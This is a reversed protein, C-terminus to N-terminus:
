VIANHLNFVPYEDGHHKEKMGDVESFTGPDGKHVTGLDCGTVIFTDIAVPTEPIHCFDAFTYQAPKVPEFQV